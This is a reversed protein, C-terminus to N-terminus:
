GIVWIPVADGFLTFPLCLTLSRHSIPAALSFRCTIGVEILEVKGANREVLRFANSMMSHHWTPALRVSGLLGPPPIKM